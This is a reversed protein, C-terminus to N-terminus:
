GELEQYIHPVADGKAPGFFEFMEGVRADWYDWTHAGPYERYIHPIEYANLMQHFARNSELLIDETGVTLYMEPLAVLSTSESGFMGFSFMSAQRAMMVDDLAKFANTGHGVPDFAENEVLYSSLGAVKGFTAAYSLGLRIAGGGGMSIGALYTDERRSSLPFTRRTLNILEEGIYQHYYEAREPFDAYYANDGDPMFIAIDNTEAYRLLSMRRLMDSHNGHYGHLLYLSRFGEEPVPIDPLFVEMTTFRNLAASAFDMQILSM